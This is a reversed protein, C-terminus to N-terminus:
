KIVKTFEEYLGDSLSNRLKLKTHIPKEDWYEICDALGLYIFDQTKNDVKAFKRAFIHLNVNSTKNTVLKEGDGKDSSHSPKSSYTFTDKSFFANKYKASKTFKEKEINIFLFFDDNYKLFGSGRFSSHIKPFNCLQAINLM